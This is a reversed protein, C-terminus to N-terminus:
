AIIIYICPTKPIIDGYGLTTMTVISYYVSDIYRSVWYTNNVVEPNPSMWTLSMGSQIELIAIYHWCCAIIHTLILLFGVLKILDLFEALKERLRMREEIEGIMHHMDYYRLILMFNLYGVGM